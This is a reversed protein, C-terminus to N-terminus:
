IATAFDAEAEILTTTQAPVISRGSGLPPCAAAPTKRYKLHHPPKAPAPARATQVEADRRCGSSRRQWRPLTVISHSTTRLHAADVQISRPDSDEGRRESSRSRRMARM